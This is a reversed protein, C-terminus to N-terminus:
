GFFLKLSMYCSSPLVILVADKSQLATNAMMLMMKPKITLKKPPERLSMCPIEEQM